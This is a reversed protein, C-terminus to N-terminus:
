GTYGCVGMRPSNVVPLMGEPGECGHSKAHTGCLLSGDREHACHPCINTAPKGCTDCPWIPPQNRALLRVRGASERGEFIGVVRLKLETTSGMDYEYRATLGPRSFVVGLKASMSGSPSGFGFDDNESESRDYSTNGITFDSLHGCCELWIKRLFADLDDLTATVSADVHLWYPGYGEAAILVRPVATGTGTSHSAACQLLHRSMGTKGCRKNCLSCVGESKVAM